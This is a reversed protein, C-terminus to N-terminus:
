QRRVGGGGEAEDAVARVHRGGEGAAGGLPDDRADLEAKAARENLTNQVSEIDRPSTRSALWYMIGTPIFFVQFVALGVAFNLPPPLTRQLAAFSVNVLSTGAARGVGNV